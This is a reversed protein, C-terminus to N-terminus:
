ARPRRLRAALWVYWSASWAVGLALAEWALGAFSALLLPGLPVAGLAAFVAGLEVAARRM